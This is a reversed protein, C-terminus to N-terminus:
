HGFSRPDLALPAGIDLATLAALEAASLEFDFISINEAQRKANGSKPTPVVGNQTHWRMVVQGPTREHAAAIAAIVREELLGGNRGLPSWAETVIGHERHMSRLDARNQTPDLQIQNVQPVLGEDFLPQLHEPLFNSVGIARVQGSEQLDRLGRFADVYTGQDPNPWHILYLDIIELGLRGTSAEFARHVGDYSHWKKNLKTTVFVEDRLLGSRRIGEGVGAENEYNEATDFLRYGADAATAVADATESDNMPWTGLGLAPIQVGNNLTLTPALSM